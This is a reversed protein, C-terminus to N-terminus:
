PLHSQPQLAPPIRRPTRDTREGGDTRSRGTARRPLRSGHLLPPPDFSFHPEQKLPSAHCTIIPWTDQGCHGYHHRTLKETVRGFFQLAKAVVRLFTAVVLNLLCPKASSTLALCSGLLLIVRVGVCRRHVCALSVSETKCLSECTILNRASSTNLSAVLWVSDINSFGKM